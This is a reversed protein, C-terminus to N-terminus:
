LDSVSVVEINQRWGHVFLRSLLILAHMEFPVVRQHIMKLVPGLLFLNRGKKDIVIKSENTFALGLDKKERVYKRESV